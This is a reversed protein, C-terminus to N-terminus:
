VVEDRGRSPLLRRGVAEHSTRNGSGGVETRQRLDACVLPSPEPRRSDAGGWLSTREGNKVRRQPTHAQAEYPPDTITCDVVGDGLMPLAGRNDCDYVLWRERGALVDALM